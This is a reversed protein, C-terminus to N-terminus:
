LCWIEVGVEADRKNADFRRQLLFFGRQRLAAEYRM